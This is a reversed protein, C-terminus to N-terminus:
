LPVVTVSSTYRGGTCVSWYVIKYDNKIRYLTCYGTTSIVEAKVDLDVPAKQISTTADVQCGTLELLMFVLMLLLIFWVPWLGPQKSTTTKM